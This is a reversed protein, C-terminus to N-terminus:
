LLTKIRKRNLEYFAAEAIQYDVFEDFAYNLIENVMDDMTIDDFNYLSKIDKIKEYNEDNIELKAM